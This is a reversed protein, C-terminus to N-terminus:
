GRKVSKSKKMIIKIEKEEGEALKAKKVSKIYGKKKAKIIYTGDELGDFEFFGNVDSSTKGKTKTKKGELILTASVIPRENVNVVYGSIKGKLGQTPTHIPTLTPLTTPTYIPTATPSPTSSVGTFFGILPVELPTDPDNSPISLIASHFGATTPLFAVDMTCTDSPVLTTGSCNNNQISFKASNTGTVSLTGIVLDETGANSVTFTQKASSSSSGIEGFDHLTPSVEIFPGGAQYTFGVLRSSFKYEGVWLRNRHFALAAPWFLKDKGIYPTDDQANYKGIIVDPDQGNIADNIDQWAFVRSHNTDSIFLHDNSVLAAQPLNTSYDGYSLGDWERLPTSTGSLTNVDYISVKSRETSVVVLYTGNSSIRSPQNHSLNFVYPTNATDNILSDLDGANWVYVGNNKDAVYLFKDDLAIGLIDNINAISQLNIKSPSCNNENYPLSKWVYIVNRGGALLKKGYFVNAWPAESLNCVFDPHSGSQTPITKWVYLKRDFDSTVFLSAGDTAPVPNTIIYNTGLTNTYFDTSGIIIDPIDKESTPISSYGIIKNDNALSVFLTDNAIAVGSGDGANFGGIQLDPGTNSTPISNWINLKGGMNIFKGDSTLVGGWMVVNQDVNPPQFSFDYSQDEKPFISWFFSGAKGTVKSNHDGIVLYSSGDTGISRPTGFQSTGNQDKGTLTIDPKINANTPFNNWIFVAKDSGGGTKTVILKVGDTWVAWPWKIDTKIEFDASQGNQTPFSNWILLRDNYTDAVVVKDNGIAVGVPWNLGDLGTGPDNTTLDKQGLVLYPSQNGAPISTWVLVRNNNKDVLLLRKGDTAINGPHNFLLGDGPTNLYGANNFDIGSLLINADQGTTFWGYTKEHIFAYLGLLLSTVLILNSITNRM